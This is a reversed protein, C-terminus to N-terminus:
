LVYEKILILARNENVKKKYDDKLNENQILTDIIEHALANSLIYIYNPYKLSRSDNITLNEESNRILRIALNNYIKKDLEILEPWEKNEIMKTIEEEIESPLKKEISKWFIIAKKAASKLTDTHESNKIFKFERDIVKLIPRIIINYFGLGLPAAAELPSTQKKLIDRFIIKRICKWSPELYGNLSIIPFLHQIKSIM